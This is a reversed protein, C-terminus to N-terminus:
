QTLEKVTDLAAKRKIWNNMSQRAMKEPNSARWNKQYQRQEKSHAARWERGKQRATEAYAANTAERRKDACEDSCTKQKGCRPDFETGCMVCTKPKCLGAMTRGRAFAM